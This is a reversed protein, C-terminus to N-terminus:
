IHAPHNQLCTLMETIPRGECYIQYVTTFLPFKDLLGKQKLFHYVLTSNELGQLKRGNLVEKELKGITKGTGSFAKTVKSDSGQYCTTILDTLGCSELFTAMSVQGKCFIRTFAIMEVLGLRMIAAKSNNGCRLDDCFITGMAVINKLAGCLEVANADEVVTIRFNPTQLLEKFLLGNQIVKSGITTECFKGAALENATNAGVLVSVDM